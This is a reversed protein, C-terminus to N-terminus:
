SFELSIITLVVKGSICKEQEAEVWFMIDDHRKLKRQDLVIEQRKKNKIVKVIRLELDKATEMYM